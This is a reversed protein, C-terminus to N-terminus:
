GIRKKVKDLGLGIGLGTSCTQLVFPSCISSMQFM